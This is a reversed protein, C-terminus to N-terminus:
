WLPSDDLKSRGVPFDFGFQIITAGVLEVFWNPATPAIHVEDILTRLDVNRWLGSPPETKSDGLANPTDAIIARLEQEYEFSRRKHIFPWLLNDIPVKDHDYDIYQVCGLFVDEPLLLQLKRFSTRISVSEESRSYIKWMAASEHKSLHWSSTFVWPRFRRVFGRIQSLAKNYSERLGEKDAFDPPITPFVDISTNSKPLSGEFPDGLLDSRAFYLGKNALMSVFKTFDMYRWASISEDPPPLFVPHPTAPM